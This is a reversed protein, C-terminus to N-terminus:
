LLDVSYVTGSNSSFVASLFFYDCYETQSNSTIVYKINSSSLLQKVEEENLSCSFFQEALLTKNTFDPTQLSHGLFVRNNSYAPILNGLYYSSLVGDLPQSSNKLYEIIKYDDDNIFYWPNSTKTEIIRKFFINLSTMSTIVFLTLLLSLFLKRSSEQNFKNALEKLLDITLVVLPFLASRLFFRAFGLPLFSLTLSVGTWFIFYRQLNNLKNFRFLNCLFPILLLGYGFFLSSITPNSLKQKVVGAFSENSSLNKQMLLVETTGIILLGFWIIAKEKNLKISNCLFLFSGILIFSLLYYPYFILTVLLFFFLSFLWKKQGKNNSQFFYHYQSMLLFIYASVALGEHPRQIASHFSFSTMSSDLSDHYPYTLFGLGGAFLLTLTAVFVTSNDKYIKKTFFILTVVLILATITSLGYFIIFPSINKFLSGTLTYLPYYFIPKNSNSDYVNEMLFGQNQGWNIASVYVNIDWPDFWSAQGSFTYGDPTNKYAYYHPYLSSFLTIIWILIAIIILHIKKM